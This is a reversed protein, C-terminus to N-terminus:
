KATIIDKLANPLWNIYRKLTNLNTWENKSHCGEGETGLILIPVNWNIMHRADTAGCIRQLDPNREPFANQMSNLMAKLLPADPDTKVPVCCELVDIQCNPVANRLKELIINEGGPETFRFNIIVSAEEPVQNVAKGASIQCAAMTDHWQDDATANQPFAARIKTYADVLNDIANDGNWPNAAHCEKGPATIKCVLVGKEQYTICFPAGDIIIALKTAAYGRQIMGATTFGGIEEDCSFMVGIGFPADKLAILTECDLAVNGLCDDSGRGYLKDGEIRPVFQEEDAPVVDLHSCLIVDQIKGPRNSAFLVRRNNIEEVAINTIGHARLYEEVMESSRNIRSADSSVARNRILALTLELYDCM